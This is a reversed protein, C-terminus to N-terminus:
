RLLQNLVSDFEEIARRIPEDIIGPKSKVGKHAMVYRFQESNMGYYKAYRQARYRPMLARMPTGYKTTGIVKSPKTGKELFLLKGNARVSWDWGWRGGVHVPTISRYLEETKYARAKIEERLKDAVKISLEKIARRYVSRLDLRLDRYIEKLGDFTLRRNDTKDIIEIDFGVDSDQNLKWKVM